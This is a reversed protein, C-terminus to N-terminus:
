ITADFATEVDIWFLTQPRPPTCLYLMVDVYYKRPCLLRTVAARLFLGHHPPTNLRAHRDVEKQGGVGGGGKEMYISYGCMMIPGLLGGVVVGVDDLLCMHDRLAAQKRSPM